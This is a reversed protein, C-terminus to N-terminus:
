EGDDEKILGSIFDDFSLVRFDDSTKSERLIVHIKGDVEVTKFHKIHYHNKIAGKIIDIIKNQEEILEM